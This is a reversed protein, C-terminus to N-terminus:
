PTNGAKGAAKRRRRQVAELFARILKTQTEYEMLFADHGYDSQLEVYTVDTGNNRLANAIERNQYAPFLWDSSFAVQLFVATARKLSERLSSCDGTMDFYDMAKTLYLYTNADFRRTFKSGQHHLYSEVQFEQEFNYSYRDRHRLDRGFKDQMAQDSLYTIHGIMRALALGLDPPKGGHYNGGQWNPDSIIAQRGVENFAIGQPSLRHTTAIPIAATVADPYSVTWELAQMGGMSGGVVALLVDIGLHGVLQKQCVVMDHVTVVPFERGYPRGTAPNLSSPGTSGKCGGLFNSCIVFYRNTDFAKGPGVMPDWWGPKPDAEDHFGAVHADGSLAHCVLIANDKAPSLTGYTEYTIVVPALCAGCELKLPDSETFLTVTSPEVIGVSESTLTKNSHKAM